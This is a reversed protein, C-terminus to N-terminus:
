PQQFTDYATFKATFPSLVLGLRTGAEAQSADTTDFMNIIVEQLSGDQYVYFWVEEIKFGPMGPKHMQDIGDIFVDKIQIHEPWTIRSPMYQSSVEQYQLEGMDNKGIEREAIVTRHNIDFRIRHTKHTVQADQWTRQVLASLTSIFAKRDYGPRFKNLAPIGISMLLALLAIAVVIELLSFGISPKCPRCTVIRTLWAHIKTISEM